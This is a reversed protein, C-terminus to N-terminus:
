ENELAKKAREIIPEYSEFHSCGGESMVRKGLTKYKGEGMEWDLVFFEEKFVQELKSYNLGDSTREFNDEIEIVKIPFGNKFYIRTRIRGYSLGIKQLIKHINDNDKWIKLIGGGDTVIGTLQVWDFEHVSLESNLDISNVESNIKELNKEQGFTLMGILLFTTTFIIKM